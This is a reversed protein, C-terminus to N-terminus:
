WCYFFGSALSHGNSGRDTRFLRVAAEQKEENQKESLSESAVQHFEPFTINMTSM